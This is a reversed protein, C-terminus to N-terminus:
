RKENQSLSELYDDVPTLVGNQRVYQCYRWIANKDTKVGFAREFSSALVDARMNVANICVNISDPYCRIAVTDPVIDRKKDPEKRTPYDVVFSKQNIISEIEKSKDGPEAKISYDAYVVTGALNPNKSVKFAKIGELGKVCAQNYKRLFEEPDEDTQVTVYECSSYIALPLPIGLKTLMHPNFGQSFEVNIGSRRFTRNMHRLIDIHSFYVATDKKYYKLTIM